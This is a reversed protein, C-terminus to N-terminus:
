AWGAGGLSCLAAGWRRVWEDLLGSVARRAVPWSAFLREHVEEVLGFGLFEGAQLWLLQHVTRTKGKGKGEFSSMRMTERLTFCHSRAIEGNGTWFNSPFHRLITRFRVSNLVYRGDDLWESALAFVEGGVDGLGDSGLEGAL